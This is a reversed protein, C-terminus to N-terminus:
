LSFSVIDGIKIDHEKVFGANVELVYQAPQSSTFSLPFTGPSVDKTIDVIKKNSDIWIFDLSFRVDQMWFSHYDETTFVFLMGHDQGINNRGALGQSRESVEDAVEIKLEISNDITLTKSEPKRFVIFGISTAMIIVLVPLAKYKNKKLSKLIRKAIRWPKLFFNVSNM